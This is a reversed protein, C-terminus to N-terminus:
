VKITKPRRNTPQHIQVRTVRSGITKGKTVTTTMRTGGVTKSQRSIVKAPAKKAPPSSRTASKASATRTSKSPSNRVTERKRASRAKNRTKSAQRLRQEKDPQLSEWLEMGLMLSGGAAVWGWGNNHQFLVTAFFGLSIVVGLGIITRLILKTVEM